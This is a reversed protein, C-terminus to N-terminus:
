KTISEDDDGYLMIILKTYQIEFELKGSFSVKLTGPTPENIM